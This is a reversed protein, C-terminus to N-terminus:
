KLSSLIKRKKLIYISYIIATTVLYIGINDIPLGPPGVPGTPPPPMMAPGSLFHIM